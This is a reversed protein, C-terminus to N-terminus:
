CYGFAKHPHLQKNDVFWPLHCDRFSRQPNIRVYDRTITRVFAEAM